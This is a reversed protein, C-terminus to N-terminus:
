QGRSRMIRKAGFRDTPMEFVARTAGTGARAAHSNSPATELRVNPFRPAGAPRPDNTRDDSVAHGHTDAIMGTRGTLMM